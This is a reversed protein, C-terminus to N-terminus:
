ARVAARIQERLKQRIEQYIPVEIGEDVELTVAVAYPINEDLDGAVAKCSVDLVLHGEDVFTAAATGEWRQHFVTGRGVAYHTPQEVSRAVNLSFSKDGGPGAELKAVRYGRHALNLPTLWAATISVSRFGDVDELTPPLPMRFQDAQDDRLSGWRILTARKESCALVREIEPRGYGLLRALEEREQDCERLIRRLTNAAGEDWRAAHITLAKLVVAVAGAKTVDDISPVEPADPLALLAEYIRIAEHTALGTAVSTGNYLRTPSAAGPSAARVGFHHHPSGAPSVQIPAHSSTARVHEKGGPLLLDPKVSRHFGLGLASSPNPLGAGGYAAMAMMGSGNAVSGDDHCAGVTLANVSEAPSLLRRAARASLVSALLHNEREDQPAQEFESWTGVNPLPLSDLINGASVFVLLGYKWAAYDILRAWPSMVGAFRHRANGLSLNVIHVRPATPEEGAEGEKMRRLARWVLDVVLQDGPLREDRGGVPNEQPSMVPRVYLRHGVPTPNALDGYAIISAMATGHSYEAVSGYESAVDDPDDIELRDRLLEHQAMPMGDLLAAVPPLLKRQPPKSQPRKQEVLGDEPRLPAGVVAQPRLFMIEDVTALGIDRHALLERVHSAPVDVLAAHYRIEALQARHVVEGKLRKLVQGLAQEAQARRDDRDRFWLEIELRVPKGKAAQLREEWDELAEPTVRDKPGWPRIDKLHRFVDRWAKKGRELTEGRQHRQWLSVLERLAREDPLTFYMRVPVRGDGKVTAFDDDTAFDDEDEGLFELGIGRMARYFDTLTGAVEFVLAREPVIATPDDRLATLRAPTALVQALRDFKPGLRERQRADSVPKVKERASQGPRAQTKSPSPLALLPLRAM